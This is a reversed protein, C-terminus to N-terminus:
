GAAGGRGIVLRGLTNRVLLTRTVIAGGLTLILPALAPSGANMAQEPDISM